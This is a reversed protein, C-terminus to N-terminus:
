PRSLMEMVLNAMRDPDFPKVLTRIERAKLAAPPPHDAVYATMMLVKLEPRLKLAAEVLEYGDMNPMKIDSLLLSVGPHQKLREMAERGDAATAVSIGRSTLLAGIMQRLQTEDEALVVQIPLGM